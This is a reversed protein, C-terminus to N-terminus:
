DIPEGDEDEDIFVIELKAIRKGWVESDTMTAWVPYYGDGLGTRSVVAVGGNGTAFNLQGSGNVDGHRASLTTACAGSWSFHGEGTDGMENDAWENLYGPDTIMVQGSDVAVYGLLVQDDM